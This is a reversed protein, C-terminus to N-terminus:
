FKVHKSKIVKVWKELAEKKAVVGNNKRRTVKLTRSEVAKEIANLDYKLCNCNWPNGALTVKRLRRNYVFTDPNYRKLNNNALGIYRLDSLCDFM